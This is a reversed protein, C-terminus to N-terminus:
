KMPSPAPTKLPIAPPAPLISDFLAAAAEQDGPLVHSYNKLTTTVDEHGLRESVVKLGVARQLLLTAMTHRLTYPTLKVGAKLAVPDFVDRRFNHQWWHLGTPTPFIPATPHGRPRANLAAVTGASLPIKRRSGPTKPEKLKGTNIELSRQIFLVNGTLDGWKLGLLEGPRLGADAAVRIPAGHGMADATAILKQLEALTLSHTLAKPPPAIKVGRMPSLPLVGARVAANMAMRLTRGTCHRDSPTLADLSALYRECALRNIDRLKVNGLAPRLRREIYGQDTRYAGGSVRTRHLALWTTFWDGLTGKEVPGTEAHQRHWTLAEAKTDFSKSSRIREGTPLTRCLIARWKGSPRLEIGGEGRGRRKAM